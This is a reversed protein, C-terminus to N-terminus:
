RPRTPMAQNLPTDRKLAKQVQGSLWLYHDPRVNDYALFRTPGTPLNNTVKFITTGEDVEDFMAIYIMEAQGSKISEVAQQWLFRGELRPIADFGAMPEDANGQQRKLNAWSFGPYIVPLYSVEKQKTWESDAILTPKAKKDIDELTRMRGVSWPSVIDVGALMELLKPNNVADGQLERWRYPVGLMIAFKGLEPDKQIIRVMEICDDLSYKRNDGSFGIGWISLLPKQDHHLYHTDKHFGTDRILNRLDEILLKQPEGAQIGSLDYMLAWPTGTKESADRVNQLVTNRFRLGKPDKLPQVFRQAMAGGIGYDAMWQFHREVTRPNASSFVHAVSGDAHRFDTPHKEAESYESMDPWYDITVNQRDFKRDKGWHGFGLEM